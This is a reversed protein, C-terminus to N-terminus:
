SGGRPRRVAVYLLALGLVNAVEGAFNRPALPLYSLLFACQAAFLLFFGAATRLSGPRAREIHNLGAHIVVLFALVIVALQLIPGAFLLLPAVALVVRLKPRDFSSLLAGWAGLLSAYYSWFWVDFLDPASARVVHARALHIAEVLAVAQALGFLAFAVAFRLLAPSGTTRHAMLATRAVLAALVFGVGLVAGHALLSAAAM